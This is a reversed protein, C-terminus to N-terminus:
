NEGKQDLKENFYEILNIRRILHIRRPVMREYAELNQVLKQKRNGTVEVFKKLFQTYPTMKQNISTTSVKIENM